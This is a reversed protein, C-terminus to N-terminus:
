GLDSVAFINFIPYLFEQDAHQLDIGSGDAPFVLSCSFRCRSIVCDSSRFKLLTNDISVTLIDRLKESCVKYHSGNKPPYIELGVQSCLREVDRIKWGKKPNAEMQELLSKKPAM